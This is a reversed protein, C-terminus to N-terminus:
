LGSGGRPTRPWAQQQTISRQHASHPKPEGRPMPLKAYCTAYLPIATVSKAARVSAPPNTTVPVCHPPGRGFSHASAAVFLASSIPPVPWLLGWVGTTPALAAWKHRSTRHTYRSRLCSRSLGIVSRSQKRVPRTKRCLGLWERETTPDFRSRALISSACM